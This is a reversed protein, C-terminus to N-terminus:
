GGSLIQLCALVVITLFGGVLIGVFAEAAFDIWRGM